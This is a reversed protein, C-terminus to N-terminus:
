IIFYLTFSSQVDHLETILYAFTLNALYVDFGNFNCLCGVNLYEGHMSFGNETGNKKSKALLKPMWRCFDVLVLAKDTSDIFVRLDEPTNLAKLPVEEPALSM